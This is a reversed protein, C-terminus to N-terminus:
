ATQTIKPVLKEKITKMDVTNAPALLREFNVYKSCEKQYEECSGSYRDNSAKCNTLIVNCMIVHSKSEATNM